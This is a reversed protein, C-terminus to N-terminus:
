QGPNQSEVVGKAKRCQWVNPIATLPPVVESAFKVPLTVLHRPAKVMFSCNVINESARHPLTGCVHWVQPWEVSAILRAQM